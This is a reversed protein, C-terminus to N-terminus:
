LPSRDTDNHKDKDTYKHTRTNTMKTLDHRKWPKITNPLSKILSGSNQGEEVPPTPAYRHRQRQRHRQM